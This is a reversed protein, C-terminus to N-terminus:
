ESKEAAAEEAITEARLRKWRKMFIIYLVLPLMFYLVAVIRWLSGSGIGFFDFLLVLGIISRLIERLIFGIRTYWELLTLLGGFLLILIAIMMDSLPTTFHWYLADRSFGLVCAMITLVCVAAASPICLVRRLTKEYEELQGLTM